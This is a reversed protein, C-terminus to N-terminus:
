RLLGGHVIPRQPIVKIATLAAGDAELDLRVERLERGAITGNAPAPVREHDLDMFAPEPREGALVREGLMTEVRHGCAMGEGARAADIREVVPAHSGIMAADVHM